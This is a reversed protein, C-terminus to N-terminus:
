TRIPGVDQVLGMIRYHLIPCDSACETGMFDNSQSVFPRLDLM